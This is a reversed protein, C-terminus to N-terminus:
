EKHKSLVTLNSLGHLTDPDEGPHLEILHMRIFGHPAAADLQGNVRPAGGLKFPTTRSNAGLQSGAELTTINMLKLGNHPADAFTPQALVDIVFVIHGSTKAARAGALIICRGEEQIANNLTQRDDPSAADRLLNEFKWGWQIKPKKRAELLPIRNDLIQPAAQVHNVYSNVNIYHWRNGDVHHVCARFGSRIAVDSVFLNCKNNGTFGGRNFTNGARQLTNFLRRNELTQGPNAPDPMTGVLNGSKKWWDKYTSIEIQAEWEVRKSTRLPPRLRMRTTEHDNPKAPPTTDMSLLLPHTLAERSDNGFLLYFLERPNMPHPNTDTDTRQAYRAHLQLLRLDAPSGAPPSPHVAATGIYAGPQVYLRYGATGNLFTQIFSLKTAQTVKSPFSVGLRSPIEGGSTDRVPIAHLLDVIFNVDVNEYILEKPTCRAEVWRQWWKAKPTELNLSLLELKLKPLSSTGAVAPEFSLWGRDVAHLRIAPDPLGGDDLFFGLQASPQISISLTIDLTQSEAVSNVYTESLQFQDNEAMRTGTQGPAISSLPLYFRRRAGPNPDSLADVLNWAMGEDGQTLNENM